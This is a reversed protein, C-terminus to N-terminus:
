KAFICFIIGAFIFIPLGFIILQFSEEMPRIFSVENGHHPYYFNNISNWIYFAIVFFPLFAILGVIIGRLFYKKKKQGPPILEEQEGLKISPSSNKYLDPYINQQQNQDM